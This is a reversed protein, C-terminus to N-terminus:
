GHLHARQRVACPVWPVFVVRRHQDQQQIPGHRVEVGVSPQLVCSGVFGIGASVGIGALSVIEKM